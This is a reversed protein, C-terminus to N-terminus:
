DMTLWARSRLRSVISVIFSLTSSHFPGFDAKWSDAALLLYGSTGAAEGLLNIQILAVKVNSFYCEVVL